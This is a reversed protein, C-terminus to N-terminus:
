GGVVQVKVESVTQQKDFGGGRVGGEREADNNGAVHFEVGVSALVTDRSSLSDVGQTSELLQLGLVLLKQSFFRPLARFPGLSVRLELGELWGFVNNNDLFLITARKM